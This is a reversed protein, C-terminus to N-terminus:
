SFSGRVPDSAFSRAYWQTRSSSSTRKPKAVSSSFAINPFSVETEPTPGLIASALREPEDMASSEIDMAPPSKLRMEAILPTPLFVASFIQTSSFSLTPSNANEPLPSLFTAAGTAFSATAASRASPKLSSVDELITASTRAFFGLASPTSDIM